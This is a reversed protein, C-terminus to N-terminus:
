VNKTIDIGIARMILQRLTDEEMIEEGREPIEVVLPMISSSINDSLRRDKIMKRVGSTVIIVGVDGREMLEKVKGECTQTDSAVHSEIVGAIKFGTNLLSNGVYAIKLSKDVREEM